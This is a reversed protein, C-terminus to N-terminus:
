ASRCSVPPRRPACRWQGSGAARNPPAAPRRLLRPARRKGAPPRLTRPAEPAGGAGAHADRRRRRQGGRGGRGADNAAAGRADRDRARGATPLRAVIPAGAQAAARHPLRCRAAGARNAAGRPPDGKAALCQQLRAFRSPSAHGRAGEILLVLFLNLLLVTATMSRCVVRCCFLSRQEVHAWQKRRPQRARRLAPASWAALFGAGLVRNRKMMEDAGALDGLAQRWLMMMVRPLTRYEEIEDGYALFHALAFGVWAAVVAVAVYLAERLARLVITLLRKLYPVHRVHQYMNLFALCTVFGLLGRWCIVLYQPLDFNIFLLPDPPFALQKASQARGKRRTLAADESLAGGLNRRASPKPASACCSHAGPKPPLLPIPSPPPRPPCWLRPTGCATHRLSCHSLRSASSAGGTRSTTIGRCASAGPNPPHGAAPLPGPRRAPPTAASGRM